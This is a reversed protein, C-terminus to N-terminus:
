YPCLLGNFNLVIGLLTLSYEIITEMTKKGLMSTVCCPVAHM